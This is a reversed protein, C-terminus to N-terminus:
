SDTETTSDHCHEHTSADGAQESKTLLEFEIILTAPDEESFDAKLTDLDVDDIDYGNLAFSEYITRGLEQLLKEDETTM